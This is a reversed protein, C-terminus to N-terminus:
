TFSSISAAHLERAIDIGRTEDLCKRLNAIADDALGSAVDPELDFIRLVADRDWVMPREADTRQSRDERIDRSMPADIPIRESAARAKLSTMGAFAAIWKREVLAVGVLM